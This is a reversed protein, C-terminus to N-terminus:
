QGERPQTLADLRSKYLGLAASTHHSLQHAMYHYAGFDDWGQRSELFRYSAKSLELTESSVEALRAAVDSVHKDIEDTAVVWNVLGYELAEAASLREGLWHLQKAKRIGVTKVLTPIEADNLELKGFIPSGFVADPTAAVLDCAEALMLGAALCHGRVQCVTPVTLRRLREVPGVFWRSELRYRGEATSQRARYDPNTGSQKLDHGSSFSKGKGALVVVRVGPDREVDELASDLAELLGLDQANHTGPRNLWIWRTSGRDEVLVSPEGTSV